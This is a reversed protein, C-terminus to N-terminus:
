PLPLATSGTPARPRPASFPRRYRCRRLCGPSEKPDHHRNLHNTRRRCLEGDRQQQRDSRPHRSRNSKRRHRPQTTVSAQAYRRLWLPTKQNTRGLTLQQQHCHRGPLPLATQDLRHGHRCASPVQGAVPMAQPM